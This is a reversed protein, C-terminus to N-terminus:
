SWPAVPTPQWKRLWPIKGVWPDFGDRKRRRGWWAFEKGNRWRPLDSNKELIDQPRWKKWEGKCGPSVPKWLIIQMTDVQRCTPPRWSWLGPTQLPKYWLKRQVYFLLLLPHQTLLTHSLSLHRQFYNELHKRIVLCPFLSGQETILSRIQSILSSFM